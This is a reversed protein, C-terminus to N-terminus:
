LTKIIHTESHLESILYNVGICVWCINLQLQMLIFPSIERSYFQNLGGWGGGGGGGEVCVCM